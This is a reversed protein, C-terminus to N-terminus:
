SKRLFTDFAFCNRDEKCEEIIEHRKGIIAIGRKYRNYFCKHKSTNKDSKIRAIIRISSSVQDMTIKAKTIEIIQLKRKEKEKTGANNEDITQATISDTKKGDVSAIGEDTIINENVEKLFANVFIIEKEFHIIDICNM